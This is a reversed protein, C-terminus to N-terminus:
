AASGKHKLYATLTPTVDRQKRELGLDCLLRRLSNAITAFGTVDIPEGGLFRAGQDDAMAKLVAASEAIARQGASVHEEGGLDSLLENFMRQAARKAKTRGDLDDLRLLKVKGGGKPQSPPLSESQM